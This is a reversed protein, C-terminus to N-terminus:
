RFSKVIDGIDIKDISQDLLTKEKLQPLHTHYAPRRSRYLVGTVLKKPGEDLKELAEDAKLGKMDRLQYIREKFWLPTKEEDFTLCPELVDILAFGPHKMGEIILNTLQPIDLAYGRAVYGVQHMIATKLPEFSLDIVGLPTTKTKKGKETTPSSQGTTLSYLGNNHVLVTIDFNARVAKILHEAGEGYIGGDGGVALVPFKHHALHVGVATPIARGHLAHIGYPSLFDAMNGSCGIDYVLMVKDPTLEQESLANKLAAWVGFNGCGPCWTPFLKTNFSKPATKAM